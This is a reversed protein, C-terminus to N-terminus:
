LGAFQALQGTFEVNVVPGIVQVIKGKNMLLETKGIVQSEVPIRLRWFTCITMRCNMYIKYKFVPVLRKRFHGRPSSRKPDAIISRLIGVVAKRFSKGLGPRRNELFKCAEEFEARAAAHIRYHRM